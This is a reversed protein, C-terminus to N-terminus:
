RPFTHLHSPTTCGPPPAISLKSQIFCDSTTTQREEGREEQLQVHLNFSTFTLFMVASNERRRGGEDEGEGEEPM